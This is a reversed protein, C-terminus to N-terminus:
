DSSNSRGMQIGYSGDSLQTGYKIHTGYGFSPYTEFISQVARLVGPLEGTISYETSSVGKNPTVSAGDIDKWPGNFRDM